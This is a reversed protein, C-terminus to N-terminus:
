LSFEINELCFNVRNMSSHLVALQGFHFGQEVPFFQGQGPISSTACRQVLRNQETALIHHNPQQFVIWLRGIRQIM